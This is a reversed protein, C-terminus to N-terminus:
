KKRDKRSFCVCFRVIQLWGQSVAIFVRPHCVCRVVARHLNGGYGALRDSDGGDWRWASAIRWLPVSM